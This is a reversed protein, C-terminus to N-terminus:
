VVFSLCDFMIDGGVVVFTCNSTPICFICVFVYLLFVLAEDRLNLYGVHIILVEHSSNYASKIYHPIHVVKCKNIPYKHALWPQSFIM